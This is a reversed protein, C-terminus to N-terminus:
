CAGIQALYSCRFEEVLHVAHLTRPEGKEVYVMQIPVIASTNDGCCRASISPKPVGCIRLFFGPLHFTQCLGLCRAEFATM